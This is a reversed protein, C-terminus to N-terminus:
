FILISLTLMMFSTFLLVSVNSSMGRTSNHLPHSFAGTSIPPNSDTPVAVSNGWGQGSSMPPIGNSRGNSSDLPNPPSIPHVSTGFGGTANAAPSSASWNAPGSRLIQHTNNQFTQNESLPYPPSQVIWANTFACFVLNAFCFNLPHMIMSIANLFSTKSILVFLIVYSNQSATSFWIPPLVRQDQQQCCSKPYVATVLGTTKFFCTNLISEDTHVILAEEPLIFSLPHFATCALSHNVTTVPLSSQPLTDVVRKFSVTM